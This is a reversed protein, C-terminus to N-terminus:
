ENPEVRLLLCGPVDPSGLEPVREVNWKCQGNRNDDTFSATGKLKAKGNSADARSLTTDAIVLNFTRASPNNDCSVVGVKGRSSPNSADDFQTGNALEVPFISTEFRMDLNSVPELTDEQDVAVTLPQNGTNFKTGANTFGKCKIKGQYIGSSEAAYLSSGLVFVGFLLALGCAVRNKHM